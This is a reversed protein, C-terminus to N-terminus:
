CCLESELMQSQDEQSGMQASAETLCQLGEPPKYAAREEQTHLGQEAKSTDLRYIIERFKSGKM